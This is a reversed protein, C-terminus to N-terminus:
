PKYVLKYSPPVVKYIVISLITVCIWQLTTQRYTQSCRGHRRFDFKVARRTYKDHRLPHHALPVM